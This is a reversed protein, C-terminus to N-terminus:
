RDAATADHRHTVWVHDDPDRRSSVSRGGVAAIGCEGSRAIKETGIPPDFSTGMVGLRQAAVEGFATSTLHLMDIIRGIGGIQRVPNRARQNPLIQGHWLYARGM